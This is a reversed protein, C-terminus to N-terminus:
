QSFNGAVDSLPDQDADQRWGRDPDPRHALREPLRGASGLSEVDQRHDADAAVERVQASTVRSACRQTLALGPSPNPSSITQATLSFACEYLKGGHDPKSLDYDATKLHWRITFSPARRESLTYM